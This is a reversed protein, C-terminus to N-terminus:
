GKGAKAKILKYALDRGVGQNYAMSILLATMPELSRASMLPGGDVPEMGIDRILGALTKKAESDDGCYFAQPDIIGIKMLVAELSFKVFANFVNSGM